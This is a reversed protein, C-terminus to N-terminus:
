TTGRCIDFRPDSVGGKGGDQVQLQHILMTYVDSILLYFYLVVVTFSLFRYWLKITPLILSIM